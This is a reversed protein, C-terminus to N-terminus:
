TNRRRRARVLAGGLLPLSGALCLYAFLNGVAVFLTHGGAMKSATVVISTQRMVTHPQVSPWDGPLYRKGM